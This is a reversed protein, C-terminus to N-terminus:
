KNNLLFSKLDEGKDTVVGRFYHEYFEDDLETKSLKLKKLKKYRNMMYKLTKKVVCKLKEEPRKETGFPINENTFVVIAEDSLGQIDAVNIGLKLKRRVLAFLITKDDQNLGQVDELKLVFIKKRDEFIRYLIREVLNYSECQLDEDSSASALLEATSSKIPFNDPDQYLAQPPILPKGTQPDTPISPM